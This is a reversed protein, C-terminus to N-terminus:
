DAPYGTDDGINSGLVEHIILFLTVLQLKVNSFPQAFPCSILEVFNNLIQNSLYLSM